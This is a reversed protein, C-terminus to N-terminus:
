KTGGTVNFDKAVAFAVTIAISILLSKWPITAGAAIEEPVNKLLELGAIVAGALTTKWNKM